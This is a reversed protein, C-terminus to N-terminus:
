TTDGDSNLLEQLKALRPDIHDIGAQEELSRMRQTCADEDSCRLGRTTEILVEARLLPALDLQGDEHIHFEAEETTLENSTAFLEEIRIPLQRSVSSLCRYCEGEVGVELQGQVLLGEKTYSIRLQGVVSEFFLEDDVQVRPLDIPIDKSQTHSGDMLYGVNLKLMRSPLYHAQQQM